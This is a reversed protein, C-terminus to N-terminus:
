LTICFFFFFFLVKLIVLFFFFFFAPSSAGRIRERAQVRRACAVQHREFDRRDIQEGCLDCPVDTVTAARATGVKGRYTQHFSPRTVPREATRKTRAPDGVTALDGIDCALHGFESLLRYGQERPDANPVLALPAQLGNAHEAWLVPDLKLATNAYKVGLVTVPAGLPTRLLHGALVGFPATGEATIDYKPAKKKKKGKGKGKGKKLVM